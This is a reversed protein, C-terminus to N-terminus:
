DYSKNSINEQHGISSKFTKIPQIHGCTKCRVQQCRSNGKYSKQEKQAFQARVLLTRLNPPRRYVVLPPNRIALERLNVSVNLISSHKDLISRLHPLGPHCTVILPVRELPKKTRKQAFYCKGTSDLLGIAKIKYRMDDENYGRNILFGKLEQTRWLNDERENCIRRIILAQSYPLQPVWQGRGEKIQWQKSFDPWPWTLTLDHDPWTLHLERLLHHLWKPIFQSLAGDQSDKWVAIWSLRARM